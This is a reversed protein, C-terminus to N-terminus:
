GHGRKARACKTIGYRNIANKMVLLRSEYESKLDTKVKGTISNTKNRRGDNMLVGTTNSLANLM